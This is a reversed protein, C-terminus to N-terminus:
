KTKSIKVNSLDITFLYNIKDEISAKWLGNVPELAKRLENLMSHIATLSELMNIIGTFGDKDKNKLDEALYFSLGTFVIKKM